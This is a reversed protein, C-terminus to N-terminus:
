LVPVSLLLLLVLVLLLLLLQLLLLLLLVGTMTVTLLRMMRDIDNILFKVLATSTRDGLHDIITVDRWPRIAIM